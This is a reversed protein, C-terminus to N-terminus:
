KMHISFLRPQVEICKLPSRIVKLTQPTRLVIVSSLLTFVCDATSCVDSRTSIRHVIITISTVQHFICCMHQSPEMFLYTAKNLHWSAVWGGWSLSMRSKESSGRRRWVTVFVCSRPSGFGQPFAQKCRLDAVYAVRWSSGQLTNINPVICCRMAWLQNICWGRTRSENHRDIFRWM